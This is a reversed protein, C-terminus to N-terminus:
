GAWTALHYWSGLPGARVPRGRAAVRGGPEGRDVRGEEPHAQAALRRLEKVDTLKVVVTWTVIGRDDCEAVAASNVSLIMFAGAALPEELGDTPRILWALEEFTDGVAQVGAEAGGHTDGAGGVVPRTDVRDRVGGLM